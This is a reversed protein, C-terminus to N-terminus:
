FLANITGICPYLLSFNQMPAVVLRVQPFGKFALLPIVEITPIDHFTALDWRDNCIHWSLTKADILTIVVIVFCSRM